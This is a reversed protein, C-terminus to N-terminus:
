QAPAAKRPLKPSPMEADADVARKKAQYYEKQQAPALFSALPFSARPAGWIKDALEAIDAVLTAARETFKASNAGYQQKLTGYDKWLHYYAGYNHAGDPTTPVGAHSLPVYQFVPAPALPEPSKVLMVHGNVILLPQGYVTMRMDV